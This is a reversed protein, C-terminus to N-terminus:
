FFLTKLNKTDVSTQKVDKLNSNEERFHMQLIFLASWFICNTENFPAYKKRDSDVFFQFDIKEFSLDRKVTGTVYIRM